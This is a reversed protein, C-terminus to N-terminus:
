KNINEKVFEWNILNDLFAQFYEKKRNQYDLYYAHEWIDFSLLPKQNYAIPNDGNSKTTIKIKEDELILFVWGSGFHSMAKEIFEEKFKDLDDFAAKIYGIVESDPEGGGQPSLSQWFFNHNWVQGANNFLSVENPSHATDILIQELTKEKHGTDTNNIFKNAKDIYAQHHKSHHLEMTKASIYPELADYEYNLKALTFSM